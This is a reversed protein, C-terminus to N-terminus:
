KNKLKNYVTQFNKRAHYLRSMVTGQAIQLKRGIEEYSLGELERLSLIEKHAPSLSNLAEKMWEQRETALLVNEPDHQKDAEIATIIGDEATSMKSLKTENKRTYDIFVNKTVRYLWTSFSSEKEFKSLNKFVKVWVEQAVDEALPNNCHTMKLALDFVYEKYKRYLMEESKKDGSNINDIVTNDDFESRVKEVQADQRRYRGSEM